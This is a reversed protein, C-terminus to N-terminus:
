GILSPGEGEVVILPLRKRQQHYTVDVYAAGIVKIPGGTYTELKMQVPELKPSLSAKWTSKFCAENMVTLGCGTDLEFNVDQRNVNLEVTYLKVKQVESCHLSGFQYTLCGLAFSNPFVNGPDNVDVKNSKHRAATKATDGKPHSKGM